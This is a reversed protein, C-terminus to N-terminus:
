PLMVYKYQLHIRWIKTADSSVTVSVTYLVNLGHLASMRMFALRLLFPLRFVLAPFAFPGFASVPFVRRVLVTLCSTGLFLM